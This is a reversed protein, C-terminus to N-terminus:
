RAGREELVDIVQRLAVPNVDGTLQIRYGLPHIVELTAMADLLKLPVFLSRNDPSEACRRSKRPQRGDNNREQLKRRWAYFSPESVGESACFKRVSLGSDAQRNLIERWRLEKEASNRRSM